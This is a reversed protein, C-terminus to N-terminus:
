RLETVGGTLSSRIVRPNEIRRHIAFERLKQAWADNIWLISTEEWVIVINRIM